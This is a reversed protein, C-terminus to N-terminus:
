AYHGWIGAIFAVLWVVIWVAFIGIALMFKGFLLYAVAAVPLTLFLMLLLGYAAGTLIEYKQESAL